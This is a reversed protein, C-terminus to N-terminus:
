RPAHNALSVGRATSLLPMTLGLRSELALRLEVAMLSDMGLDSLPRHHDIRDPAIAMIRAIERALLEAILQKAEEPSREAILEGLSMDPATGEVAFDAFSPSNLIPLRRASQWQVAAFAVVPLGSGWLEPLADLSQAAPLPTAALRRALGERMREDGALYGADSIPGWAIALTPLG